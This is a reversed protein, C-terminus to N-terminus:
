LDMQQQGEILSVKKGGNLRRVEELFPGSAFKGPVTVSYVLQVTGGTPLSEMSILHHDQFANGFFEGLIQDHNADSDMEVLLIRERVTRAFLNFYYMAFVFVAIIFTSLIAHQYFQTGDDTSLVQFDSYGKNSTLALLVTWKDEYELFPIVSDSGMYPAVTVADFQMEDFFAKACMPSSNGIDARKADAINFTDAPLLEAVQYLVDWGKRGLAEFFAINPKYAVCYDKTADIIQACFDVVGEPSNHSKPMRSLDPDLGVCLFSKKTQIQQVLEERTM